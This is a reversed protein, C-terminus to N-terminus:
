WSVEVSNRGNGIAAAGAAWIAHDLEVNALTPDFLIWPCVTGDGDSVVVDPGAVPEVAALGLLAAWCSIRSARSGRKTRETKKAETTM